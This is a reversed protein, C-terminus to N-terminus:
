WRKRENIKDKPKKLMFPCSKSIMSVLQTLDLAKGLQRLFISTMHPPDKV